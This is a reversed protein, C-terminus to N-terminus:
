IEDDFVPIVSEVVDAVKEGKRQRELVRMFARAVQRSDYGLYKMPLPAHIKYPFNCHSIIKLRSVAASNGSSIIGEVASKALNDDAILLADPLKDKPLQMLLNAINALGSKAENAVSIRWYPRTEIGMESANSDFHEWWDNYRLNAIVAIKKKGNGIFYGLSKRIYSIEDLVLTGANFKGAVEKMLAVACPINGGNILRTKEVEHSLPPTVFILGAISRRSVNRILEVADPTLNQEAPWYCIKMKMRPDQGMESFADVMTKWFLPTSDDLRDAAIVVAFQNLHPPNSSVFTGGVGRSEVFGETVLRDIAQQVTAMSSNFKKQLKRRIPLREGPKIKGSLIVGHIFDM